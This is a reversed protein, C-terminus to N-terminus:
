QRSFLLNLFIKSKDEFNILNGSHSRISININKVLTSELSHFEKHKFETTSDEENKQLPIIKLLNAFTSGVINPVIINSYVMFYEPKLIDLNPAGNFSILSNKNLKPNSILCLINGNLFMNENNREFEYGFIEAIQVPLFLVAGSPLFFRPKKKSSVSFTDSMMTVRGDNSDTLFKNILSAIEDVAVYTINPLTYRKLEQLRGDKFTSAIITRENEEYPLPKFKKPYQLSTLAVKWNSDLYQAYPITFTFDNPNKNDSYGRVNFFSNENNMKKFKLRVFTSTGRNLNLPSDNKDTLSISIKNLTTNAIPVYHEYDFEHIQYTVSEDFKIKLVALDRSLNENMIQENIQDCKVKILDPYKIKWSDGYSKIVDSEITIVYLYYLERGFIVTEAKKRDGEGYALSLNLSNATNEHFYLLYKKHPFEDDFDPYIEFNDRENVVFRLEVGIKKMKEYDFHRNMDDVSVFRNPFYIEKETKVFDMGSKRRYTKFDEFLVEDPPHESNTMMSDIVIDPLKKNVPLLMNRFDTSFGIAQLCVHWQKDLPLDYVCPLDNEFRTLTNKYKRTDANSFATIFFEDM